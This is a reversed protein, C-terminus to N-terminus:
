MPELKFNFKLEWLTNTEDTAFIEVGSTVIKLYTNSSFCKAKEYVTARVMKFGVEIAEDSTGPIDGVHYYFTGDPLEDDERFEFTFRLGEPFDYGFFENRLISQVDELM